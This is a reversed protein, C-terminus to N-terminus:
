EYVEEILDRVVEYYKPLGLMRRYDGLWLHHTASFNLKPILTIGKERLAKVEARVRDTSWAGPKALEPHSAYQVGEGLDLVIMNIDNELSADVIKQWAEDQFSLKPSEEFWMNEGLEVYLSWIM